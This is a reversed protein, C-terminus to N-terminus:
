QEWELQLGDALWAAAGTKQQQQMEKAGLELEIEKRTKGKELKSRMFDMAAPDLERKREARKAAAAWQTLLAPPILAEIDEKYSRTEPEQERARIYRKGISIYTNIIKKWNSDGMHDDLVETCHAITAGRTSPSTLNLVAWLTELIEGDIIGVEAIYTTAYRYLCDDKHGHVHFLGIASIIRLLSPIEMSQSEALRLLLKIAYQCNVDYIHLLRQIEDMHTTAIAQVLSWDMHMQKEGKTFDVVSSPCFCGHRACAHAGVGRVRKGM